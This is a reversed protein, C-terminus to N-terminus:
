RGDKICYGSGGVFVSTGCDFTSKGYDGSLEPVYDERAKADAAADSYTQADTIAAPERGQMAVGFNGVADCGSLALAAFAVGATAFTFRGRM